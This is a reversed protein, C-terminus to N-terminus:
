PSASMYSHLSNSATTIGPHYAQNSAGTALGSAASVNLAPAVFDGPPQIM